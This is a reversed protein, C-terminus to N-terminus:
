SLSWPVVEIVNREVETSHNIRVAPFALQSEGGFDHVGSKSTQVSAFQISQSLSMDNVSDPKKSEHAVSLIILLPYIAVLEPMIALYVEQAIMNSSEQTLGLALYGVWIALYLLGSVILLMLIKLVKTSSKNTLGLNDQVGQFHDWAKFGILTTATFNTLILPVAVMMVSADGGRTDPNKIVRKVLLGTELFVGVFSGMLCISLAIKAPLRQPFLVWARWVVVIDGITDYSLRSMSNNGINLRRMLSISSRPNYGEFPIQLMFGEIMMVLSSFSALFMMFTVFSLALKAKSLPIGQTVFICLVAISLTGQVGLLLSTLAIELFWTKFMLIDGDSLPLSAQTQQLPM